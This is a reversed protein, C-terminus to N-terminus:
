TVLALNEEFDNSVNFSQVAQGAAGKVLNDILSVIIIKTSDYHDFIKLICNNTNQISFFDARQDDNKFKIFENNVAIANLCNIVDTKNIGPTLDCYITSLMGRFNPLIHPNFSFLVDSSKSHKMLEQKIECIHRHTNTNYNYFNYDDENQITKLDFKKGAGSYGSKSDIIINKSDIIENQLLPILPILVSTPYCGPVAINQKNVLSNRYIEVLGYQFENLLNSASHKENYNKEYVDIDDLRFDASLDIIQIKDYFSKVYKHSIGHPLAMFVTDAKSYDFTENLQTVSNDYVKITPDIDKLLTNPNNETGFFVINVNPHKSLIKVLELGVFGTSGLIAVSVKKTM